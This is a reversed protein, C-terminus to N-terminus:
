GAASSFHLNARWCSFLDRWCLLTGELQLSIARRIEGSFFLKLFELYRFFCTESEWFFFFWTQCGSFLFFVRQARWCSFFREARWWPVFLERLLSFGFKGGVFFLFNRKEWLPSFM